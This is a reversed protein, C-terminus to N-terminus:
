AWWHYILDRRQVTYGAQEYLKCAPTNVGQTVVTAEVLGHQVAWHLGYQVLTRGIGQGRYAEDVAIIGINATGWKEALTVFGAINGEKEVVYVGEAMQGNLSKEMWIRYMQEFNAKGFREDTNFRSYIGSQIALGYLQSTPADLQCRSVQGWIAPAPDESVARRYTLKEDALVAGAKLILNQLDAVAGGEPVDELVVYVLDAEQSQMDTLATQLESVGISNQCDLQWVEKGIFHSDWELRKLQCRKDTM